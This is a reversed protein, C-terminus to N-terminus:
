IFTYIYLIVYTYLNNYHMIYLNFYIFIYIYTHSFSTSLHCANPLLYSCAGPVGPEDVVVPRDGKPGPEGPFGRGGPM